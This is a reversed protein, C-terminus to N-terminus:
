LGDFDEYHSQLEAYDVPRIMGCHICEAYCIDFTGNIVGPDGGWDSTIKWDHDWEIGSFLCQWDNHNVDPKSM